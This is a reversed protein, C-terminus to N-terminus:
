GGRKACSKELFINKIENKILEDIKMTKNDKSRSIDPFIPM